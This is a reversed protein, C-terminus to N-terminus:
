KAGVEGDVETLSLAKFINLMRILRPIFPGERPVDAKLRVVNGSQVTILVEPSVFFWQRVRLHHVGPTLSVLLSGKLTVTGVPSGDVYVAFAAMRPNGFWNRDQFIEVNGDQVDDHNAGIFADDPM